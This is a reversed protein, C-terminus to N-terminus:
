KSVETAILRALQVSTKAVDELVIGNNRALLGVAITAAMLAITNDNM